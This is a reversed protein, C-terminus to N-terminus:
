SDSLIAGSWIAWSFWWANRTANRQDQSIIRAPILWIVILGFLLLVGSIVLPWLLWHLIGYLATVPM